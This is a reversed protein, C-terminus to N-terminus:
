RSVVDRELRRQAPILSPAVLDSIGVEELRFAVAKAVRPQGLLLRLGDKVGRAARERQPERRRRHRHRQLLSASDSVRVVWGLRVEAVARLLVVICCTLKLKLHLSPVKANEVAYILTPM